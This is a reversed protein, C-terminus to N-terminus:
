KRTRAEQADKLTQLLKETPIIVHEDKLDLYGESMMRRVENAVNDWNWGAFMNTALVSINNSGEKDILKQVELAIDKQLQTWAMGVFRGQEQAKELLRAAIEESESHGLGQPILYRLFGFKEPQFKADLAATSETVFLGPTVEELGDPSTRLQDTM